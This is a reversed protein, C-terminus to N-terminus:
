ALAPPVALAIGRFQWGEPWKPNSNLPAVGRRVTQRM